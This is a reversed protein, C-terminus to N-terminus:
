PIDLLERLNQRNDATENLSRELEQAIWPLNSYERSYQLNWFPIEKCLSSIMQFETKLTNANWIDFRFQNEVLTSFKQSTSLTEKCRPVDGSSPSLLFIGSIPIASSLSRPVLIQRKALKKTFSHVHENAFLEACSDDNLRIEPLGPFVSLSPISEVAAVDDSYIEFGKQQLYATLTSKGVGEPGLYIVAKGNQVVVGGHLTVRRLSSLLPLIQTTLIATFFDSDDHAQLVSLTSGKLFFHGCDFYDISLEGDPYKYLQAQTSNTRSYLLHQHKARPFDPKELLNQITFDPRDVSCQGLKLQVASLINLGHIKYAFL